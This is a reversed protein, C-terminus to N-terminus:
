KPSNGALLSMIRNHLLIRKLLWFGNGESIYILTKIIYCYLNLGLISFQNRTMGYHDRIKSIEDSSINGQAITKRMKHIRECAVFDRLHFAKVPMTFLKIIFDNDFSNRYSEDLGEVKDFLLKSWFMSPQFVSFFSMMIIKETFLKTYKVQRMDFIINEDTDIAYVDGYIINVGNMFAKAIMSFTGPLYLDDSCLWAQIDGTAKKFGKNLAQVQGEDPESVWYNIYKEYKKIIDVSRDTSGGDIIIYELNPYNQNLVSLITKELFQGQNLSPTVISIKPFSNDKKLIIKEDFLHESVFKKIEENTFKKM